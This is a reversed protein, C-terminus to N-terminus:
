ESRQHHSAIIEKEHDIADHNGVQHSTQRIGYEFSAIVLILALILLWGWFPLLNGMMIAVEWAKPAKKSISEPIFQSFFLDYTAWFSWVFITIKVWLKEQITRFHSLYQKIKGM